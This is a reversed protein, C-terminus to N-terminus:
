KRARTAYELRGASSVNPTPEWQGVKPGVAYLVNPNVIPQSVYNNYFFDGVERTFAARKGPDLEARAKTCFDDWRPHEWHLVVTTSIGGITCATTPTGVGGQIFVWMYGKTNREVLPTRVTPRYEVVLRKVTLGLNKEWMSAIAEGDDLSQTGGPFRPLWLNVSFGNPYGAETLLEKARKPDYPYPKWAPNWWPVGEKQFQMVITTVYGEGLYIKDLIAQKDVALNLAQRVKLANAGGVPEKIDYSGVWPDNVGFGPRPVAYYMGGFSLFDEGANRATIIRLGAALVEPKFQRSISVIDAQGIRLMAIQTAPEPAVIFNLEAFEPTVRWHDTVAKLSLREGRKHEKFEYPGAHVPQRRLGDEGVEAMYKKPYVAGYGRTLGTELFYATPQPSRAFLTYRDKAQIRSEDKGLWETFITFGGGSLTGSKGYALFFDRLDEATVEGWGKHFQVGKRLKFTYEVQGDPFQKVEWSEAMGPLPADQNVFNEQLLTDYMPQVLYGEQVVMRPLWDENGMSPVAINLTGTPVTKPTATPSPILTPTPAVRTPTPVGPALTATPIAPARTAAPALTATPAPTATPAARACAVLGVILMMPAVFRMFM